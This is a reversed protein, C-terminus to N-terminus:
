LERDLPLWSLFRLDFRQWSSRAPEKTYEIANGDERTDWVLHAPVGSTAERWGVAYVNDPRVMHDFRAVTQEALEPSDIILGIETNLHKSRQDFNMSGIFIRKRDFVLLKAHLGYNGYRSVLATEGSGRTNGLLSRIEYLEVGDKLLQVRVKAYGSQALLDTTSKLSNTLIGVRVARARLDQVAHLEDPAPILYPTIMLLESQVAGLAKLVQEAMLRGPLEGRDVNKKDPSDSFVHAQAWVLPLRGSIIGAYPEGTALQAVYDVGDTKLPQMLREPRGSAQVRREALATGSRQNRDLAAAPVAFRSNWYEDFTASLQMAIPGAAFVDDDAFQSDPDMQFYQNGINRGGILAVANDVILLKNHMRYDLRSANFMFEVTRRLGSHGRYVFPNFIRIEISKHADLASIQEDGAVTDGDDVLVRVRVGRDAARMLADTLLRGTEDGRFIFYQLDLTKEAADIMQARALFGDVGVSIIRFASNGDRQRAAGDFQAGLRTEEPHALAVSPSKPDNFRAPM